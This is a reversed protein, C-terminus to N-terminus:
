TEKSGKIFSKILYMLKNFNNLSTIEKGIRHFYTLVVKVKTDIPKKLEETKQNM